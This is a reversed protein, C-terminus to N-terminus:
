KKLEEESEGITIRSFGKYLDSRIFSDQEIGFDPLKKYYEVLEDDESKPDLIIKDIIEDWLNSKPIDMPCSTPIPIILNNNLIVGEQPILFFRIEDEYKFAERKLMLLKLYKSFNFNDFYTSNLQGKDNLKHLKNIYAKEKYTVQGVVLMYKGQLANTIYYDLYDLLAKFNIRIQICVKRDDDNNEDVYMKWSPESDKDAAFCCAYLNRHKNIDFASDKLKSYDAGYFRSEYPDTWQSPQQFCLSFGQNDKAKQIKVYDIFKRRDIYKYVIRKNFIEGSLLINKRKSNSSNYSYITGNNIKGNKKIESFVPFDESNMFAFEEPLKM